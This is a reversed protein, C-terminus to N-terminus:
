KGKSRKATSLTSVNNLNDVSRVKYYYARSRKAKTDTYSRDLLLRTTVKSFKASAKRSRYLFYGVAHEGSPQSWRVVRGSKKNTVRVSNPRQIQTDVLYTFSAVPSLTGQSDIAQVQLYYRQENGTVSPPAFTTVTQMIGVSTPDQATTDWAVYYGTIPYASIPEAWAFYPGTTNTRAAEVITATQNSDSYATIVPATPDGLNSIGALAQAVSIRGSGLSPDNLDDATTTLLQEVTSVALDSNYALLLAAAGSVIPTAMSTGSLYDYYDIFDLGDYYLTSLIGVGPATVDICNSGYNTFDAAADIDDSAAVGFVSSYCVPYWPTANLDVAKNGAAAIPVIGATLLQQMADNEIDSYSDGGYSMNFVAAGEAMAYQVADYIYDISSTGQDTFIRLPMLQVNWNVGSVGASNNGVAGIIGAVHTGHDVVTVSYSDSTPTPNPNNDNGVFDWGNVDDVYGNADDDLGNGAIEDPNTWINSALDPHDLYVGTDVVAVVITASGTTLEWAEPADIDADNSQDLYYQLDYHTDDPTVAIHREVNPEIFTIEPRSSLEAIAQDVNTTHYAEVSKTPTNWM